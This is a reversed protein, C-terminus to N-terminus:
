ALSAQSWRIEQVVQNIEILTLNAGHFRNLGELLINKGVTGLCCKKQPDNTNNIDQTQWAKTNRIQEKSGQPWRSPFPQGSPERKHHKITNKDSEWTTDQTLHPIQNYRTRIKAVKRVICPYMMSGHYLISLLRTVKVWIELDNSIYNIAMMCHNPHRSLSHLPM